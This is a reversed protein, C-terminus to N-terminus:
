VQKHTSNFKQRKFRSLAELNLKNFLPRKCLIAGQDIFGMKLSRSVGCQFFNIGYTYCILAAAIFSQLIIQIMKRMIMLLNIKLM